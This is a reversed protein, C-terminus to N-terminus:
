GRGRLALPTQAARQAEEQKKQFHYCLLVRGGLWDGLQDYLATWLTATFARKYRWVPLMSVISKTISPWM